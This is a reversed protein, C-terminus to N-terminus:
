HFYLMLFAIYTEADVHGYIALLRFASMFGASSICFIIPANAQARGFNQDSERSYVTAPSSTYNLEPSTEIPDSNDERL